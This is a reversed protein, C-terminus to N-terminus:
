NPQDDNDEHLSPFSVYTQEGTAAAPKQAPNHDLAQLEDYNPSLQHFYFMRFSNNPSAWEPKAELACTIPQPRSSPTFYSDAAAAAAGGGVGGSDM